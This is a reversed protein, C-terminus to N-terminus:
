KALHSVRGRDDLFVDFPEFDGVSSYVRIRHLGLSNTAWRVSSLRFGNRGMNGAVYAKTAVRMRKEAVTM